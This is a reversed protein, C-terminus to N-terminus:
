EDPHLEEIIIEAIAKILVIDTELQFPEKNGPRINHEVPSAKHTKKSHLAANRKMYLRDAIKKVIDDDTESLPPLSRKDSLREGKTIIKYVASQPSNSEKIEKVINKLREASIHRDLVDQLHAQGEGEMLYELINYLNKFMGIYSGPSNPFAEKIFAFYFSLVMKNCKESVTIHKFGNTFQSNDLLAPDNNILAQLYNKSEIILESQTCLEDMLSTEKYNCVNIKNPNSGIIELLQDSYRRHLLDIERKIEDTAFIRANDFINPGHDPRNNAYDVYLRSSSIQPCPSYDSNLKFLYSDVIWASDELFDNRNYHEPFHPFYLVGGLSLNTKLYIGPREILEEDYTLPFPCVLMPYDLGTFFYAKRKKWDSWQMFMNSDIIPFLNIAAGNQLNRYNLIM